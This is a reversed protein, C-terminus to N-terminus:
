SAGAPSAIRTAAETFREGRQEASDFMDFSACGPSLLVVDGPAAADAAASVAQEMSLAYEVPVREILAGIERASEGMLIIRKCREQAAAALASFETRKSRGGAILIIPADFAALAKIVADPNSAKSDDVFTVGASRAVVQLRHALPEFSNLGDVLAQAAEVGRIRLAASAALYAAMANAANHAGQIKLDRLAIIPRAAANSAKHAPREVIWGNEVTVQARADGTLSFWQQACRLRKVPGDVLKVLAADDANGIFIDDASENAFIRFKAERYEEISPYRDLHDPTINLLVSIRPHFASICELQFSSVEAVLWEDASAAAAELILPDGINGGVRARVGAARLLRGILATTTSKGKSGTIAIIPAKAIRYAAEIESIVPVGARQIALVARNNPPVGPSVIAISAGVIATALGDEGVLDVRLAALDARQKVLQEPPKDDYATVALGRDRLVAATAMGSRGVGIVLARDGDQFKVAADNPM